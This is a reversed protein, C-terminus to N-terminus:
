WMIIIVDQNYYIVDQHHHHHHHHHIFITIYIIITITIVAQHGHYNYHHQQKHIITAIAMVMVMAMVIGSSNFYKYNDNGDRITRSIFARIHFTHPIINRSIERVMAVFLLMLLTERIEAKLM